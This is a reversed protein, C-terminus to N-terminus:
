FVEINTMLILRRAKLSKAVAGAATDGNINYTQSDKSGFPSIIPVM